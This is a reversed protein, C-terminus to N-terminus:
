TCPRRAPCRAQSQFLLQDRQSLRFRNSRQTRLQHQHHWRTKLPRQSPRHRRPSFQQLYRLSQPRQLLRRRPQQKPCKPPHQKRLHPPLNLRRGPPRRRQRRSQQRQLLSAKVTAEPKKAPTLEETSAAPEATAPEETASPTATYGPPCTMWCDAGAPLSLFALGTAPVLVTLLLSKAKM